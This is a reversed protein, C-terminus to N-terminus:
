EVTLMVPPQGGVVSLVISGGNVLLALEDPTPEWASSYVNDEVRVSLHGCKGSKEPDWDKPAGYNHTAGAIRKPIMEGRSKSQSTPGAAGLLQAAPAATDSNGERRAQASGRGRSPRALRHADHNRM